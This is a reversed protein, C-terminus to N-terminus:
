YWLPQILPMCGRTWSIPSGHLCIEQGPHTKLHGEILEQGFIHFHRAHMKPCFPLHQPESSVSHIYPQQRFWKLKEKDLRPKQFTEWSTCTSKVVQLIISLTLLPDLWEMSQHPNQPIKGYQYFSPLTLTEQNTEIYTKCHNFIFHLLSTGSGSTAQPKLPEESLIPYQTKHIEWIICSYPLSIQSSM